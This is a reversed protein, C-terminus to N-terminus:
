TDEEKEKVDYIVNTHDSTFYAMDHSVVANNADNMINLVGKLAKINSASPETGYATTVFGQINPTAKLLYGNSASWDGRILVEESGRINTFRGTNVNFIHSCVHIESSSYTVEQHIPLKAIRAPVDVSYFSHILMTTTDLKCVVGASFSIFYAYNGFSGIYNGASIHEYSPDTTGMSSFNSTGANIDYRYLYWSAGRLCGAISYAQRITVPANIKNTTPYSEFNSQVSATTASLTAKSLSWGTTGVPELIIVVNGSVCVVHMNVSETGTGAPFSYNYWSHTGARATWYLRRNNNADARIYGLYTTNSFLARIYQPNVSLTSFQRNKFDIIHQYATTWVTTIVVEGDSNSVPLKAISPFRLNSTQINLTTDWTTTFNPATKTWLRLHTTYIPSSVTGTIIYYAQLGHFTAGVTLGVIPLEETYGRFGAVNSNVSSLINFARVNTAQRFSGIDTMVRSLKNKTLDMVTEAGTGISQKTSLPTMWKTDDTGAKAEAATAKDEIKVRKSIEYQLNAVVDDTLQAQLNEFWEEFQGEWQGFLVDINASNLIGTVFPTESTGVVVQIMAQTIAAAAPPVLVYALAYQYIPGSKDLVPKVPNTGPTGKVIKLSNTRASNDSHVELIVADYRSLTVDAAAISLPYGADNRNWTHNFWARGSQVIIQMGDGPITGFIEDLTSFVGDRIIGDFIASIQESNYKRDGNLSNYFGFTFAM